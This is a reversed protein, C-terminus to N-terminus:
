NETSRAYVKDKRHDRIEVELDPRLIALLDDIKEGLKKEYYELGMFSKDYYVTFRSYHAHSNEKFLTVEWETQTPRDYEDFVPVYKVSDIISLILDAM